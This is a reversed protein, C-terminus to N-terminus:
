GDIASMREIVDALLLYKTPELSLKKQLSRLGVTKQEGFSASLHVTAAVYFEWQDLDLPDIRCQDVESLVCFVYVDSSRSRFEAATNTAADWGYKPEIGFRIQSLSKQQWSQIFAGSKVEVRIGTSTILDVSDWEVRVTDSVKCASAVLFEAVVGRM